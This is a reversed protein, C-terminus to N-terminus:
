EESPWGAAELVTDGNHAVQTAQADIDIYATSNQYGDDMETSFTVTTFLPETDQGPALASLYYYYGDQETWDETNLDLSMLSLDGEGGDALTMAEEISVRVWAERAGTNTVWVVKSVESGPVIEDSDGTPILSGDAAEAWKELTIELGDTSVEGTSTEEHTFYAVSGGVAISACIVIAAAVTIKKKM